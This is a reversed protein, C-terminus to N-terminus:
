LGERGLCIRKKVWLGIMVLISVIAMGSLFLAIVLGVANNKEVKVYGFVNYLANDVGMRVMLAMFPLIGAFLLVCRLLAHGPSRNKFLLVGACGIGGILFILLFLIGFSEFSSSVYDMFDILATMIYIYVVGALSFLLDYLIKKGAMKQMTEDDDRLIAENGVCWGTHLIAYEARETWFYLWFFRRNGVRRRVLIM